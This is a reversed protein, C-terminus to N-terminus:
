ATLWGIPGSLIRSALESQTGVGVKEFVRKLHSRVTHTSLGLEIAIEDPARGRAIRLCVNAEQLTLAYALQVLRLRRDEGLGAPSTNGGDARLLLLGAPGGRQLAAQKLSHPRFFVGVPVGDHLCPVEREGNRVAAVFAPEFLRAIAREVRATDAAEGDLLRHHALLRAFGANYHLPRLDETLMAMAIDLQEIVDQLAMGIATNRAIQRNIQFSRDWHPMLQAMTVELAEQSDAENGDHRSALRHMMEVWRDEDHIASYCLEVLEEPSLEEETPGAFHRPGEPPVTLPEGSEPVPRRPAPTGIWDLMLRSPRLRWEELFIANRAGEVACFAVDNVGAAGFWDRMAQMYGGLERMPDEGGRMLLVRTGNRAQLPGPPQWARGFGDFIAMWYGLTPTPWALPDALLRRITEEDPSMADSLHRRQSLHAGIFTYVNHLTQEDPVDVRRILSRARTWARGLTWLAPKNPPPAILIISRALEPQRKLLDLTLLGTINPAILVRDHWPVGAFATETLATFDALLSDWGTRPDLHARPQRASVSRGHGRLDGWRVSLGGAHLAFALDDLSGAHCPQSHGVCVVPAGGEGDLAKMFLPTGDASVVFRQTPRPEVMAVARLSARM